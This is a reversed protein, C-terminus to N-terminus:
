AQQRRVHTRTVDEILVCVDARGMRDSRLMCDLLSFPHAHASNRNRNRNRNCPAHLLPRPRPLVPGGCPPADDSYTQNNAKQGDCVCHASGAARPVCYSQETYPQPTLRCCQPLLRVPWSGNFPADNNRVSAGLEDNKGHYLARTATRYGILVCVCMRGCAQM